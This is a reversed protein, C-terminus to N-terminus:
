HCWRTRNSALCLRDQKHHFIPRLGLDHKSIRFSDEIQSLGIYLKCLTKPDQSDLNTRLLHCGDALGGWERPETTANLKKVYTRANNQELDKAHFM